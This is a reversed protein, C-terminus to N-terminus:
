SKREDSLSEIVARLDNLRANYSFSLRVHDAARHGMSSRVEVPQQFFDVVANAISRPSNSPIIVGTSSVVEPLAGAPTVAAPTGCAMAEAVASGFGEYMSPQLYLAAKQMLAVKDQLSVEGLFEVRDAVNLRRALAKLDALADGERGALVFRTDPHKELVLPAAHVIEFLCKRLANQRGSWAINLIINSTRPRPDHVYIDSDVALYSLSPNRVPFFRPVLEFEHSCIFISADSHALGKRLLWKQWAPRSVYDHKTPFPLFYDFVGSVVVKPRTAQFFRALVIPFVARNWWWVYYLDVPGIRFLDSLTEAIVVEHGLDRLIRLDNNYFEITEIQKATVNAYYCIRM